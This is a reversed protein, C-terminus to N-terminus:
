TKDNLRKIDSLVMMSVLEEFSVSPSWNLYKKAKSADGLLKVKEAPRYFRQDIKVYDEYNLGVLNFGIKLFDRVSHSQGTAVVYDDPQDRQLMAHMAVVYDGSFGWDRESDINGLRIENYIGVKIQAISSSIKRTVFEFDRRPSEHNFLIGSCAFINNKERYNRTLQYGAVKSIGYISRPQFKTNENQPSENANGFMESSGAFYLKCNPCVDNLSSLVHHTGNINTNMTSYEDEFSYSVFSESALHYCEDPQVSKFVKSLSLYSEINATHLIIDQMIHSLRWLRHTPDEISINRVVGHVEYGLGILYESLYSGDQGSIGLILAKKM